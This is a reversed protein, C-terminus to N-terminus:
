EEIKNKSTPRPKEIIQAMKLASGQAVFAESHLNARNEIM